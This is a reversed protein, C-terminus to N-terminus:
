QVLTPQSTAFSPPWGCRAFRTRNAFDHAPGRSLLLEASENSPQETTRLALRHLRDRQSLAHIATLELVEDSHARPIVLRQETDQLTLDALLDAIRLAREDNVARRHGLLAGLRNAHRALPASPEPLHLATLEAHEDGVRPLVGGGEHILPEVKRPRPREVLHTAALRLNRGRHPELLRPLQGVLHQALDTRPQRVPPDHAVRLEPPRRRETVAEGLAPLSIHQLHRGRDDHALHHPRLNAPWRRPVPDGVKQAPAVDVLPLLKV